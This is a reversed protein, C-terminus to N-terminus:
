ISVDKISMKRYSNLSFDKFILDAKFQQFTSSFLEFANSLGQIRSNETSSQM